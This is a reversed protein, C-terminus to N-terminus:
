IVEIPIELGNVQVLPRRNFINTHAQPVFVVGRDFLSPALPKITVPPPTFRGQAAAEFLEHPIHSRILADLESGSPYDGNVEPVAISFQLGDALEPATFLVQLNNTRPHFAVVKYEVSM